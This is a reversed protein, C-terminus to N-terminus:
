NKSKRRYNRGKIQDLKVYGFEKVWGRATRINVGVPFKNTAKYVKVVHVKFKLSHRAYVIKARQARQKKIPDAM